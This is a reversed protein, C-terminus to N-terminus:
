EVFLSSAIGRAMQLLPLSALLKARYPPCLQDYFLLLTMKSNKDCVRSFPPIINGSLQLVVHMEIVKEADPPM